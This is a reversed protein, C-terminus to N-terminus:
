ELAARAAVVAPLSHSEGAASAESCEATINPLREFHIQCRERQEM